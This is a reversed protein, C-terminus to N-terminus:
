PAEPALSCAAPKLSCTESRPEELRCDGTELRGLVNRYARKRAAFQRRALPTDDVLDFLVPTQKGAHPRMLRGLRQITRGEARAPTALILRELRAVDLGEDALSTACVVRLDGRRFRDLLESRRCRAVRGTLAEAGVGAERLLAALHECHEVRGSLILVALGAAAERSALDVILRNRAADHTLQDVLRTHDTAGPACGTAVPEVRPVVLHGAQVLEEHRIRFVTPGICLDLLPTLGDARDPTATLGFRYRGPLHALLRRFTSAPTHHAEDIVVAGFRQGLEALPTDDLAALTQVTAVTVEALAFTGDAVVGAQLGLAQQIAGRWQDVLDRTHVLVLAPQRTAAIAAAGIVTKGGGCPVVICGQVHRVLEGAARAQYDRLELRLAHDVEPRRMRHDEFAVPEGVAALARRVVAVAGRPVRWTGDADVEALCIEEPTAGVWREFRVRNVYEPNPFTLGRRLLEAAKAPLGPLRITSDVVARVVAGRSM